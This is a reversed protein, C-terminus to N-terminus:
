AHEPNNSEPQHLVVACSPTLAPIDKHGLGEGGESMGILLIVVVVIIIVATVM